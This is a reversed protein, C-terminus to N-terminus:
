LSNEKRGLIPPLTAFLPIINWSVSVYPILSNRFNQRFKHENLHNFGLRLSTLLKLGIPNHAGFTDVHKPQIFSLLAIKFATYATM